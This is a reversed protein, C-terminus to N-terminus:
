VAIYGGDVYVNSGTTMSSMDSLLFIVSNVVEDVEGFRGLPIRDLMPAAVKPDSWGLRGMDTMIVTPNVNNVRIGHRGYDLAISRTFADVAGKSACYVSHNALGAVSAQSSINVISGPAKRALLNKIVQKTVNIMSKINIAFVKDVDEETVETLPGLIALGANNVLLDVNGIKSLVEETNKWNSLDAAIIEISPVEKQLSELLQQNRAVAIVKAGCLVLKKVLERGIGQSAGTVLARKGHFNIEM